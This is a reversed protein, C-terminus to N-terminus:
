AIKRLRSEIDSVQRKLDVVKVKAQQALKYEQRTRYAKFEKEAEKIQARLSRKEQKLRSVEAAKHSM